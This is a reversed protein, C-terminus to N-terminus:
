VWEETDAAIKTEASHTQPVVAGTLKYLPLFYDFKEQLHFAFCTVNKICMKDDDGGLVNGLDQNVGAFVFLSFVCM